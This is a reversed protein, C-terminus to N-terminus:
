TLPRYNSLLYFLPSLSVSAQLHGGGSAKLRGRASYHLRGCALPQLRAKNILTNM